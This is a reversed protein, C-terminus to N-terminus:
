PKFATISPLNKQLNKVTWGVRVNDSDQNRAQNTFFKVYIALSITLLLATSVIALQKM